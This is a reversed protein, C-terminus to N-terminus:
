YFELHKVGFETCNFTAVKCGMEKLTKILVSDCIEAGGQVQHEFFDAIFVIKKM